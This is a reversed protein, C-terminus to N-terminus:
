FSPRPLNNEDIDMPRYESGAKFAPLFFVYEGFTNITLDGQDGFSFADVLRNFICGRDYHTSGDYFQPDVYWTEDPTACVVLVHGDARVFLGCRNLIVTGFIIEDEENAALQKLYDDLEEYHMGAPTYENENVVFPAQLDDSGGPTTPTDINCPINPFKSKSRVIDLDTVIDYSWGEDVGEITSLKLLLNAEEKKAACTPMKGTQFYEILRKALATCDDHIHQNGRLRQVVERVKIPDFIKVPEPASSPNSTKVPTYYYGSNTNVIQIEALQRPSLHTPPETTPVQSTMQNIIQYSNIPPVATLPPQYQSRTIRNQKIQNNFELFYNQCNPSYSLSDPLIIVPSAVYNKLGEGLWYLSQENGRYTLSLVKNTSSSLSPVLALIVETTLSDLELHDISSCHSLVAKLHIIVMLSPNVLGLRRIRNSGNEDSFVSTFAAFVEETPEFFSLTHIQRIHKLYNALIMASGMPQIYLNLQTIQCHRNKLAEGLRTVVPLAGESGELTQSLDLIEIKSNLNEFIPLLTVIAEEQPNHLALISLHNEPDLLVPLVIAAVESSPKILGIKTIQNNKRLAEKFTAIFLDPCDAFFGLDIIEGLLLDSGINENYIKKILELNLQSYQELM